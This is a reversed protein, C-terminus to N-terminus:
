LFVITFFLQLIKERLSVMDVALQQRKQTNRVTREIKENDAVAAWQTHIYQIFGVGDVIFTQEHEKEWEQIDEVLNAELTPLKKSVAAMEKQQKLLAGGRNNKFRNPDKERNKMERYKKFLETWQDVGKFM